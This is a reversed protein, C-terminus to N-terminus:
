FLGKAKSATFAKKDDEDKKGKEIIVSFSQILCYFYHIDDIVDHRLAGNQNIFYQEFTEWTDCRFYKTIYRKLYEYYCTTGDHGEASECWGLVPKGYGRRFIICVRANKFADKCIVHECM